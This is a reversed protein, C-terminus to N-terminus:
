ACMCVSTLYRQTLTLIKRFVTSFVQKIDEPRIGKKKKRQPRGRTKIVYRILRVSAEM